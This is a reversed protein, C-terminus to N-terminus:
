MMKEPIDCREYMINALENVKETGFEGAAEIMEAM